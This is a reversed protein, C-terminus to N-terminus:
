QDCDKRATDLQEICERMVAALDEGRTEAITQSVIMTVRLGSSFATLRANGRTDDDERKYGVNM